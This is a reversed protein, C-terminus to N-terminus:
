NQGFHIVHTNIKNKKKKKERKHEKFKYIKLLQFAMEATLCLACFDEYYYILIYPTRWWLDPHLWCERSNIDMNLSNFNQQILLSM